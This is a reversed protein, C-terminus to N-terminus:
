HTMFSGETQPPVAEGNGRAVKKNNATGQKRIEAAIIRAWEAQRHSDASKSGEDELDFVERMQHGYAIMKSMSRSTSDRGPL